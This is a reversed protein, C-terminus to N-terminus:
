SRRHSSTRRRSRRVTGAPFCSAAFWGSRGRKERRYFSGARSMTRRSGGTRGSRSSATRGSPGRQGHGPGGHDHPQHTEGRVRPGRGQGGRDDAPRALPRAHGRHCHRAEGEGADRSLGRVAQASREDVQGGGRRVQCDAASGCGGAGGAQMAGVGDGGAPYEHGVLRLRHPGHSLDQEATRRVVAPFNLALGTAISSTLFTRRNMPM